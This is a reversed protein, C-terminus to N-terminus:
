KIKKFELWIDGELQSQLHIPNFQNDRRTRANVTVEFNRIIEVLAGKLQVLAFNVGLCARPGNSFAVFYGKDKYRKLVGNLLREPQFANPQAYYGSDNLVAHIPLMITTGTAIKLIEGNKTKLEAPKTCIRMMFTTPPFIRIAEHICANLYELKSIKEFDNGEGLQEIIEKFLMRQRIPDRALLLLCHALVQSITVYGDLLVSIAHGTLENVKLHKKEHLQLLYNLFDSRNKQDRQQQRRKFSDHILRVFFTEISKRVFRLKKFRKLAPILGTLVMYVIYIFSQEAYAKTNYFIQPPNKKSFTEAKQGLISDSVIECTLRLSLDNINFTVESGLKKNEQDIYNILKKCIKSTVSFGSKLRSVVLGPVIEARREVWEDGKMATLNNAFTFDSNEDVQFLPPALLMTSVENDRFHQFDKVLIQKILDANTIMLLPTRCNYIGVYNDTNKYTEYIEQIDCAIHRKQTFVSPFNGLFPRPKPGNVGRKKWYNFNWALFIYLLVLNFFILWLITTIM